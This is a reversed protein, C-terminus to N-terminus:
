SDGQPATVPVSAEVPSAPLAASRPRPQRRQGRAWIAGVVGVYLAWAIVQLWSMRPMFGVTAQLVAALPSGPPIAASVDFAWGFPFAAWGVAVAGTVPDLPAAATFPGAIVGAEQLDHIGYALVGAAVVILFAGTWTFFRRLDLRLMGRALLWGLVVAAALGLLAGLLAVPADGFSQVMSWLLLTTEVGERAVSVFGVVVAAWLSAAALARDVGEELTRRLSRATRQMWFIMWTVMAVTVLSLTGGLIEQGEFTLTYAGFTLIAGIALALTVALGVGVWLRPLVDRRDLRTLYAVLIGVVLAAELGERLGILFTALM